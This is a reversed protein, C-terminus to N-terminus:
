KEKRGKLTRRTKCSRALNPDIGSIGPTLMKLPNGRKPGFFGFTSSTYTDFMVGKEGEELNRKKFNEAAM